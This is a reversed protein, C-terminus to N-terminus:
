ISNNYNHIGGPGIHSDFYLLYLLIIGDIFTLVLNCLHLFWNWVVNQNLKSDHVISMTNSPCLAYKYIQLISPKDYILDYAFCLLFQTWPGGPLSTPQLSYWASNYIRMWFSLVNLISSFKHKKASCRM